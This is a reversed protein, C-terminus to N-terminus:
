EGLLLSVHLWHTVDSARSYLGVLVSPVLFRVGQVSQDLPLLLTGYDIAEGAFLGQLSGVGGLRIGIIM